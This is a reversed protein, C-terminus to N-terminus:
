KVAGTLGIMAVSGPESRIVNERSGTTDGADGVSVNPFLVIGDAMKLSPLAAAAIVTFAEIGTIAVNLLSPLVMVIAGVLTVTCFM